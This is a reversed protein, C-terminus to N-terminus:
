LYGGDFEREGTIKCDLHNYQKLVCISTKVYYYSETTKKTTKFYIKM